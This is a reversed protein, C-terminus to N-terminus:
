AIIEQNIIFTHLNQITNIVQEFPQNVDWELVQIGGQLLRKIQYKRELNLIRAATMNFPNEPLKSLEFSIPDPSIVLVQYGRARIQILVDTDDPTLPSILVIQSKPPFIQTPIYELYSFVLSQGPKVASLSRLIKELQYKGYGPIIWQLYKGYELLGVRDGQKIFGAALSGAAQVSHEFISTSSSIRNARERGDLIIGVDSVKEQEFENSYLDSVHRASAHWNIWSPPDGRQYQRVGYFDTGQGGSRAPIEGSYFRTWHPKISIRPLDTVKPLILLSGTTSLKQRTPLLGLVSRTEVHIHDFQFVGRNGSIKYSFGFSKKSNLNMLHCRSGNLMQIDPHEKDEIFLDDVRPGLNQVEVSIEVPEGPTTREISIERKINLDLQPSPFIIGILIYLFFPLSLAVLYANLTGLGVLILGFTIFSLIIIRKM